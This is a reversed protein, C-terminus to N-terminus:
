GAQSRPARAAFLGVPLEVGNRAMRELCRCPVEGCAATVGTVPDRRFVPVAGLASGAAELVAVEAVVRRGGALRDCHVLVDVAAAIWGRISGESLGPWAMALMAEMRAVADQASNAHLTTM